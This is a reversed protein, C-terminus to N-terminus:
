TSPTSADRGAWALYLATGSSALAPAFTSSHGLRQKNVLRAHSGDGDFGLLAMNISRNGDDGVWAM